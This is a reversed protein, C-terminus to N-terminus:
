KKFGKNYIGSKGREPVAEKQCRLDAETNDLEVVAHKKQQTTKTLFDSLGISRHSKTIKKAAGWFKGLEQFRHRRGLEKFRDRSAGTGRFINKWTKKSFNRKQLFLNRVLTHDSKGERPGRRPLSGSSIRASSLRDSGLRASGLWASGLRASGLRAPRICGLM